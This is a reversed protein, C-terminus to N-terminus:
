HRRKRKKQKGMGRSSSGRTEEGAGGDDYLPLSKVDEFFDDTLNLLGGRSKKLERWQRKEARSINGRTFHEEEQKEREEYNRKFKEFERSDNGYTERVEEPKGQLDDFIERTYGHKSRREIDKDKRLANRKERTMKDNEEMKTPAFQPPKYRGTAEPKNTNVLMDPNPRLKLPDEAADDAADVNSEDANVQDPSPRSADRLLKKIQYDTKKDIRGIKELFLRMEVLSLVVSHNGISLGKAKRLMIYVLSQCYQILLLHKADLYSIGDATPYKNDKVKATLSQVKSTVTELGQKIERLVAALQPAETKMRQITQQDTTPDEM